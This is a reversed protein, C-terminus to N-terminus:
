PPKNWLDRPFELKHMGQEHQQQIELEHRVKKSVMSQLWWAGRQGHFKGALITSYAAMEMELPDERGLYPVWM